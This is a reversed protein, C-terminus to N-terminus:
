KLKKLVRNYEKILIDQEKHIARETESQKTELNSKIGVKAKAAEIVGTQKVIEWAIMEKSM